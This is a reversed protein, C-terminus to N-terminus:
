KSDNCYCRGYSSLAVNGIACRYGRASRAAGAPDASWFVPSSVPFFTRWRDAYTPVDAIMAELRALSGADVRPLGWAQSFAYEAQWSPAPGGIVSSAALNSLYYTTHDLVTGSPDYSVTRFAPNQGFIPSLAPIILAFGHYGNEDALLRFDDMHTHGAFSAAITNGYRRLLSDFLAAYRELWMPIIEGPCTGHRLTAYGDIGPPIHYVLWVHEQAQKAAALEAELWALTALGPDPTDPLGCANQYNRSFFVTNPFIIRLTGVLVSYNGHSVWDRDLTADAFRGVLERVVPLAGALFPGNPQLRYDACIEDNNGLAPLIPTDPFTNALQRGVFRITKVLFRRFAADSHDAAAGDFERRFHHALFDGPSLVFTPAPLTSKMQALASRLLPWNSDKGWGSPQSPASELIAQWGDPDADALKDVLKPDAMPDFHLDSVILFQRAPGAEGHAKSRQLLVAGAILAALGLGIISALVFSRQSGDARRGPLGSGRNFCRAINGGLRL